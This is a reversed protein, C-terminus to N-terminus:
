GHAIVGAFIMSFIATAQIRHRLARKQHVDMSSGEGYIYDENFYQAYLRDSQGTPFFIFYIPVYAVRTLKRVIAPLEFALYTILVPAISIKYNWVLLFYEAANKM